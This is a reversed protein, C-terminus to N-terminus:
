STPTRTIPEAPDVINTEPCVSVHHRTWGEESPYCKLAIATGKGTAEYHNAAEVMCVTHNNQFGYGVAKSALLSCAYKESM